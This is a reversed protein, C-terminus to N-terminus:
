CRTALDPSIPTGFADKLQVLQALSYPADQGGATAAIVGGTGAATTAQIITRYGATTGLSAVMPNRGCWRIRPQRSIFSPRAPTGFLRVEQPNSLPKHSRNGAAVGTTSADTM